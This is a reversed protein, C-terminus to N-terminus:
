SIETAGQIFVSGVPIVHDRCNCGILPQIAVSVPMTYLFSSFCSQGQHWHNHIMHRDWTTVQTPRHSKYRSVPAIHEAFTQLNDKGHYRKFANLCRRQLGLHHSSQRVGDLYGAWVKLM